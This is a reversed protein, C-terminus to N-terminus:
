SCVSCGSCFGGPGTFFSSCTFSNCWVACHQGAAKSVCTQCDPCHASWCTYANCWEACHAESPEALLHSCGHDAGCALCATMGCTWYNCWNACSGHAVRGTYAAGAEAQLLARFQHIQFNQVNIISHLIGDLDEVAAIGTPDTQLLAKSMAVSNLHHPIMQSAFVTVPSAHTDTQARMDTTM